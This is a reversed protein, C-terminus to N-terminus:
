APPPADNEDRAFLAYKVMKNHLSKRSIGLLDATEQRRGIMKALAAQIIRKEEREVITEVCEALPRAFDDQAAVADLASAAGESGAGADGNKGGGKDGNKAHFGNGAPSGAPRADIAWLGPLAERGIMPGATLVMARQVVNELERVNGPWGHREMLAMAEPTLGAVRKGFRINFADIFHQVLAPLDEMHERLSPVRMPFVNLRYFLDERFTGAEIMDRLDRNTAALVRINVPRSRTAGVRDLQREQLVRLLKAQLGLPMEGIEDLFITGGNALEFKGPKAAVAGTFAGREHGFLESELLPEPIAACNVKILPGAARSSQAHIAEAVLEKGTGSEGTVLVTVDHAAVQEIMRYVQQMAPGDGTMRGVGPPLAVRERLEVLKRLLNQKELARMLIVRLEDMNFPKTFYDYAGLRLADIAMQQSGFATIMVVLAEPYLARIERLAAMGDLRPMKLDLLYLDYGDRRAKEVAELGDCAEDVQCGERSLLERLVFRLSEEDDAILVRHLRGDSM